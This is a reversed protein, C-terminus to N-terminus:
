IEEIRRSKDCILLDYAPKEGVILEHYLAGWEDLQNATLEAYEERRDISVTGRATWYIIKNGDDYLKNIKDINMRIPRAKFYDTKSDKIDYDCITDDIDVYIVM